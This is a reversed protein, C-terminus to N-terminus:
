DEAPDPQPQDIEGTDSEETLARLKFADYYDITKNKSYWALTVITIAFRYNRSAGELHSLDTLGNPIPAIRFSNQEQVQQSHNSSLAAIVEWRRFLAATSKSMIDIQIMEQINVEQREITNGDPDADQVNRNGFCKSGLMSLTIFIGDDTPINFKQNYIIARDDDLEMESLIIERILTIASKQEDDKIM